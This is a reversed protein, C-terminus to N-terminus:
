EAVTASQMDPAWEFKPANIYKKPAGTKATIPSLIQSIQPWMDRYYNVMGMFGSLQKLNSPPQMQLQLVAGKKKKWPQQGM